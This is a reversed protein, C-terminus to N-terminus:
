RLAQGESEQVRARPSCGEVQCPEEDLDFPTLLLPLPLLLLALAFFAFVFFFAFPLPLPLVLSPFGVRRAVTLAKKWDRMLGRYAPVKSVHGHAAVSLHVM